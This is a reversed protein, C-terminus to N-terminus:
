EEVEESDKRITSAAVGSTGEGREAVRSGVSGGRWHAERLAQQAAASPAELAGRGEGISRRTSQVMCLLM